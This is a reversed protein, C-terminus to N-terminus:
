IIKVECLADQLYLDERFLAPFHVLREDFVDPHFLEVARLRLSVLQQGGFVAFLFARYIGLSHAIAEAHELLVFADLHAVKELPLLVAPAVLVVNPFEFALLQAPELVVLLVIESHQLDLVLAGLHSLHELVGHVPPALQFLVLVFLELALVHSLERVVRRGADALHGLALVEVRHLELPAAPLFSIEVSVGVDDVLFSVELFPLHLVVQLVPLAALDLHLSPELVALPLVAVLVPVPLLVLVIVVLLLAIPLIVLLAALAVHLLVIPGLVLSLPLVALSMAVALVLSLVLDDVLRVFPVVTEVPVNAFIWALNTFKSKM